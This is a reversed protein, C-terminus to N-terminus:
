PTEELTSLPLGSCAATASAFSVKIAMFVLNTTISICNFTVLAADRMVIGHILWLFLGSVNMWLMIWSIDTASKTKMVRVIQPVMALSTLTGALYGLVSHNM